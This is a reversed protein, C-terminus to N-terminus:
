VWREEPEPPQGGRELRQELGDTASDPLRGVALDTAAPTTAPMPTYELADTTKAADVPSASPAPRRALYVAAAICAIYGLTVLGLVLGLVLPTIPV